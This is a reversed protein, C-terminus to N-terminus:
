SCAVLRVLQPKVGVHGAVHHVLQSAGGDPGVVALLARAHHVHPINRCVKPPIELVLCLSHGGPIPLGYLQQVDHGPDQPVLVHDLGGQLLGPDLLHEHDGVLLALFILGPLCPHFMLIGLSQASSPLKRLMHESPIQVHPSSTM